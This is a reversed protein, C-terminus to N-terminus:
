PHFRHNYGAKVSVGRRRAAERVPLLERLSRAAPKEVLVHKGSEVAALAIPALADHRTAVIVADVNSGTVKSWDDVAEASFRAGLARAREFDNDCVVAITDDGVAAARKQGILGCGIIGIRM